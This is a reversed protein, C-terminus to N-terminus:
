QWLEAATRTETDQSVCARGVSIYRFPSCQMEELTYVNRLDVLVPEVMDEAMRKLDLGRFENWETLIVVAHADRTVSYSDSAWEVGPLMKSAVPMAVPDYAVVEADKELLAPLITLSPAERVDDTGPKFSVGLVGIRKGTLNGGVANEIRDVMNIKRADNAAIVSDVITVNVSADRAMSSLARTDKPFCSGGYGPGPHLFKAGIRGDLGIGNALDQVNAGTAECLDAMENIFTIKTALFANAAYKTLEATNLDTFVVPANRLSLPRYLNQLLSRGREGEVGVLVRDPHMFDEIAAGERLFEPNSAVEFEAKPNTERILAAIRKATGVPVTSKTVILTFGELNEAIARAADEVYGIDAGGDGRRSPTGVAIFVIDAQRVANPLQTTFSLRDAAMNTQVLVDLGPEYIPIEGHNLREIKGADMDVCTVDFGFESFCAGSVLGVYGTGIMAIRM